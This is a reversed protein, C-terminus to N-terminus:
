VMVFDAAAFDDVLMDKVTAILTLDDAAVSGDTVDTFNYIRTDTGNDIILAYSSNNAATGDITLAAFLVTAADSWNAAAEDTVAIVGNTNETSGSVAHAFTEVSVESGDAASYMTTQATAGQSYAVGTGDIDIKDSGSTFGFITDAGNTALTSMFVFDVASTTETLIITDEGAGGTIVDAGDGGTITDNGAGGDIVDDGALGFITDNESTGLLPNDNGSTGNIPSPGFLESVKKASPLNAETHTKTADLAARYDDWLPNSGTPIEVYSHDVDGSLVATLDYHSSEGVFKNFYRDLGVRHVTGTTSIDILDKSSAGDQEVFIWDATSHEAGDGVTYSPMATPKLYSSTVLIDYADAATVFGDKDFDAALYTAADFNRDSANDVSVRLADLADRGTLARYNNFPNEYRTDGLVAIDSGDNVTYTSGSSAIAKSDITIKSSYGKSLDSTEDSETYNRFSYNIGDGDMKAWFEALAFKSVAPVGDSNEGSLDGYVESYVGDMDTMNTFELYDTKTVGSLDAEGAIYNDLFDFQTIAKTLSMNKSGDSDVSLNEGRVGQWGNNGFDAGGILKVSEAYLEAGTVFLQSVEPVDEQSAFLVTPTAVNFVVNFKVFDGVQMVPVISMGDSVTASSYFFNAPTTSTGLADKVKVSVTDTTYDFASLESNPVSTVLIQESTHNDYHVTTDTSVDLNITNISQSEDTRLMSFKAVYEERVTQSNLQETVTVSTFSGDAATETASFLYAKGSQPDTWGVHMKDIKTTDNDSALAKQLEILMIDDRYNANQSLVGADAGTVIAMGDQVSVTFDVTSSAPNTPATQDNAVSSIVKSGDASLAGDLSAIGSAIDNLTDGKRVFYTQGNYTIKEGFYAIGTLNLEFNTTGESWALGSLTSGVTPIGTAASDAVQVSDNSALSLPDKVQTAFKVGDIDGNGYVAGQLNFFLKNSDPRSYQYNPNMPNSMIPDTAWDDTAKGLILSNEIFKFETNGWSIGFDMQAFEQWDYTDKAKVAYTIIDGAREGKLEVIEFKSEDDTIRGEVSAFAITGGAYEYSGDAHVFYTTGKSTLWTEYTTEGAAETFTTTGNTIEITDGKTFGIIIDNGDGNSAGDTNFVFTDVGELGNLVDNGSGGIIVDDGDTATITEDEGSGILKLTGNNVIDLKPTKSFDQSVEFEATSDIEFQRPLDYFNGTNNISFAGGELFVNQDNDFDFGDLVIAASPSVANTLTIDNINFKLAGLDISTASYGFEVNLSTSDGWMNTSYSDTTNFSGLLQATTADDTAAVVKLADVYDTNITVPSMAPAGDSLDVGLQTLLSNVNLEEILVLADLTEFVAFDSESTANSFETLVETVNAATGSGGNGSGRYVGIDVIQPYMGESTLNDIQNYVGQLSTDVVVKLSVDGIGDFTVTKADEDSESAAVYAFVYDSPPLVEVLRAAASGTVSPDFQGLAPSYKDMEDYILNAAELLAANANPTIFITESADVMENTSSNTATYTSLTESSVFFEFNALQVENVPENIANSPPTGETTEESAILYTKGDSHEYKVYLTQLKGTVNTFEAGIAAGVASTIDGLSPTGTWGNITLYGNSDVNITAGAPVNTGSIAEDSLNTILESQESGDSAIGLLEDDSIPHQGVKLESYTSAAPTYGTEFGTTPFTLGTFSVKGTELVESIVSTPLLVNNGAAPAAFVESYGELTKSSQYSALGKPDVGFAYYVQQDIGRLIPVGSHLELIYKM